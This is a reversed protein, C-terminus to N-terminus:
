KCPARHLWRSRLFQVEEMTLQGEYLRRPNVNSVDDEFSTGIEAMYGHNSSSPETLVSFM